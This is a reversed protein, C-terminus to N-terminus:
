FTNCFIFHSLSCSSFNFFVWCGLWVLHQLHLIKVFIMNRSDVRFLIPLPRFKEEPLQQRMKLTPCQIFIRPGGALIQDVTPFMVSLCTTWIVLVKQICMQLSQSLYVHLIQEKEQKKVLKSLLFPYSYKLQSPFAQSGSVAFVSPSHPPQNSEGPHSRWGQIEWYEQPLAQLPPLCDRLSALFAFYFLM